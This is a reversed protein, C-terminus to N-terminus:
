VAPPGTLGAAKAWHGGQRPLWPGQCPLRPGQHSLHRTPWLGNEGDLHAPCPGGTWESRSVSAQCGGLICHCSSQTQTEERLIGPWGPQPRWPPHGLERRM